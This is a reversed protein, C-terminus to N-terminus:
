TLKNAKMLSKKKRDLFLCSRTLTWPLLEHEPTSQRLGMWPLTFMGPTALM